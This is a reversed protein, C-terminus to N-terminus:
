SSLTFPNALHVIPCSDFCHLTQVFMSQKMAGPWITCTDLMVSHRTIVMALCCTCTKSCAASVFLMFCFVLPQVCDLVANFFCSVAMTGHLEDLDKPATEQISDFYNLRRRQQRQGEWGLVAISELHVDAQQPRALRQGASKSGACCCWWCVMM